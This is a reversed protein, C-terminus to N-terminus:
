PLLTNGTSVGKTTDVTAGEVPKYNPKVRDQLDGNYEEPKNYIMLEAGEMRDYFEEWSGLDLENSNLEDDSWRATARMFGKVIGLAKEITPFLSVWFKQGAYDGEQVTLELNLYEHGPNKAKESTERVDCDTIKVKYWGKPKAEFQSDNVDAFNVKLTM